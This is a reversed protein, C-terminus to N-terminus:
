KLAAAAAAELEAPKIAGLKRAVINGKRDVAITFPLGGMNNGLAQMLPIGQEKGLLVPYDMDYAKMFDRVPEPRDEIGIGIVELGKSRHNARLKALEPIEARCPGCWRAWFNVILPKGKWAALAAPKDDLDSLTAAFLADASDARAALAAILLGTGLLLSRM